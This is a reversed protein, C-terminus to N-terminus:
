VLPGPSPAGCDNKADCFLIANVGTRLTFRKRVRPAPRGPVSCLRWTFLLPPTRVEGSFPGTQLRERCLVGPQSVKGPPCAPLAGNQAGATFTVTDGSLRAGLGGRTSGPPLRVLAAAAGCLSGACVDRGPARAPPPTTQACHARTHARTQACVGGDRPGGWSVPCGVERFQGVPHSPRRVM